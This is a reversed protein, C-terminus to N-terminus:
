GSGSGSGALTAFVIINDRYGGSAEDFSGGCTILRLGAHDVDGYVEETPFDDKAHREVRDITRRGHGRPGVLRWEPRARRQLGPRCVRPPSPPGASGRAAEAPQLSRM